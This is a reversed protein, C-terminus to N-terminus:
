VRFGLGRPYNISQLNSTSNVMMHEAGPDLDQPKSFLTFDLELLGTTPLKLYPFWPYPAGNLTSNRWCFQLHDRQGGKHKNCEAILANSKKTETVTIDFLKLAIEREQKKSLQLAHHGTPNSATFGFSNPGLKQEVLEHEEPTLSDLLMRSHQSNPIKHFIHVVFHVRDPVDSLLKLVEQAETLSIAADGGILMDITKIFDVPAEGIAQRKGKQFTEKLEKFIKPDLGAHLDHAGRTSLFRFRLVGESPMTPRDMMDQLKPVWYQGPEEDLMMASRVFEGKEMVELKLLDSVILQSYPDSMDLVYEGGPEAPDFLHASPVGQACHRMSCDISIPRDTHKSTEGEAAHDAGLCSMMIRRSGHIGLPNSDLILKKLSRNAQLKSAFVCAAKERIRNNSLNLFELTCTDVIIYDGLADCPMIDGFGNWSLDLYKLSKSGSFASALSAAGTGRLHSWGVDIRELASNHTISEQLSECTVSSSQNGGISINKLKKHLHLAEVICAVATDVLKNKSCDFVKLPFTCGRITESLAVAGRSGIRNDSLNISTLCPCKRLGKALVEAGRDMITNGQLDLTSLQKLHRLYPSLASLGNDGLSLRACDISSGLGAAFPQTAYCTLAKVQATL